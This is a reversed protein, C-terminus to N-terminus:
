NFTPLAPLTSDSENLLAQDSAAGKKVTATGISDSSFTQDIGAFYSYGLVGLSYYDKITWRLSGAMFPPVKIKNNFPSQQGPIIAGAQGLSGGVGVIDGTNAHNNLLITVFNGQNAFGTQHPAGTAGMQDFWDKPSTVGLAVDNPDVDEAMRLGKFSTDDPGVVYQGYFAVSYFGQKHYKGSNYLMSVSNPTIIARTFIKEAGHSAGGKVTAKFNFDEPNAGCFILATGDGRDTMRTNVQHCGWSLGGFDGTSVDTPSIVPDVTVVTTVGLRQLERTEIHTKAAVSYVVILAVQMRNNSGTVFVKKTDTKDNSIAIFPVDITEM